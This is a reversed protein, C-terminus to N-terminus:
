YKALVYWTAGQLTVIVASTVSMTTTGDDFVDSGSCNLTLTNATSSRKIFYVRGSAGVGTPLTLTRASSSTNGIAITYTNDLTVNSSLVSLKLYLAATNTISGVTISNSTTSNANTVDTLTPTYAEIRGSTTNRGLPSIGGSTYAPTSSAIITSNSILGNGIIKNAALISTDQASEIELPLTPITLVSDGIKWKGKKGVMYNYEPSHSGFIIRSTDRTRIAAGAKLGVLMVDNSLLSGQGVYGSTDTATKFAIINGSSMNARSLFMKYANSGSIAGQGSINFSASQAAGAISINQIFNNTALIASGTSDLQDKTVLNSGRTARLADVRGSVQLKEGFGNDTNTNILQNGSGWYSNYGTADYRSWHGGISMGIGVLDFIIHNVTSPTTEVSPYTRRYVFTDVIASAANFTKTVTEGYINPITGTAGASITPAVSIGQVAGAGWSKNNAGTIVPQFLGAILGGSHTTLTEYVQPTSRIATVNTTPSAYVKSMNLFTGAIGTTTGIAIGNSDISVPSLSGSYNKLLIKDTNLVGAVIKSIYATDVLKSKGAVRFGFTTEATDGVMLNGSHFSKYTSADYMNWNGSPWTANGLMGGSTTADGIGSLWNINSISGPTLKPQAFGALNSIKGPNSNLDYSTVKYFAAKNIVGTSAPANGLLAGFGSMLSINGAGLHSATGAVAILGETANTYNQTNDSTIHLGGYVSTLEKDDHGAETSYVKFVSRVGQPAKADPNIITRYVELAGYRNGTTDTIYNIRGPLSISFGANQYNTTDNKIFNGTNNLQGVTVFENSAVGDAGRVTGTFLASVGGASPLTGVELPYAAYGPNAISLTGGILGNGTINFSASQPATGNQIFNGPGSALSVWTTGNWVQVSDIDPNYRLAGKRDIDPDTTNTLPIELVDAKIGNYHFKYPSPRWQASVATAILLFLLTLRKTYRM